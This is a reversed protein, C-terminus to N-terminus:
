TCKTLTSISATTFYAAKEAEVSFFATYQRSLALQERFLKPQKQIQRRCRASPNTKHSIVDATAAGLGPLSLPFIACFHVQAM